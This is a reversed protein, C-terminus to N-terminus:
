GAATVGLPIRILRLLVLCLIAGFFAAGTAPGTCLMPLSQAHILQPAVPIQVAYGMHGPSCDFVWKSSRYNGGLM